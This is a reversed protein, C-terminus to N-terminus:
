FGIGVGFNITNSHTKAKTSAISYDAYVSLFPLVTFKGGLTARFENQAEFNLKTEIPKELFPADFVYKVELDAAEYGVGGYLTFIFFSKSAALNVAWANFKIIDAVEMQHYVGQIAIDIPFVEPLYQDISHKLGVGWFAIDGVGDNIKMNPMGRVMFENGLPLGISLSAQPVPVISLDAGRPLIFNEIETLAGAKGFITATKVEFDDFYHGLPSQYIFTKDSSPVIVFTSGVKINPLFPKLVKATNFLGSNMGAGMSNALPQLFLLANREDLSALKQDLSEALMLSGICLVVFVVILKKIM